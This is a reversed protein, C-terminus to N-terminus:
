YKEAVVCCRRLLLCAAESPSCLSTPGPGAKVELHCSVLATEGNRASGSGLPYQPLM